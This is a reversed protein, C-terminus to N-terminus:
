WFRQEPRDPQCAKPHLIWSQLGIEELGKSGPRIHQRAGDGRGNRYLKWSSPLARPSSLTNHQGIQFFQFIMSFLHVGDHFFIASNHEYRFIFFPFIDNKTLQVISMSARLFRIWRSCRNLTKRLSWRHIAFQWCGALYQLDRCTTLLASWSYLAPSAIRAAFTRDKTITQTVREATVKWIHTTSTTFCHKATVNKTNRGHKAM